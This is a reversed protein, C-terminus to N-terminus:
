LKVERYFNIKLEKAIDNQNKELEFEIEEKIENINKKMKKLSIGLLELKKNTKVTKELQEIIKFLESSTINLQHTNKDLRNQSFHQLKSPKEKNEELDTKIKNINENSFFAKNFFDNTGFINDPTLSNYFLIDISLLEGKDSIDKISLFINKFESILEKITAIREKEYLKVNDSIEILKENYSKKIRFSYPAIDLKYTEWLKSIASIDTGYYAVIPGSPILVNYLNSLINLNDSTDKFSKLFNHIPLIWNKLLPFYLGNVLEQHDKFQESILAIDAQKKAQFALKHTYVVYIITVLILFIAAFFGAAGSNTDLWQIIGTFIEITHNYIVILIHM